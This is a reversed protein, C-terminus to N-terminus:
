KEEVKVWLYFELGVILALFFLFNWWFLAEIASLWLLLLLFVISLTTRRLFVPSPASEVVLKRRGRLHEFLIVGGWLFLGLSLLFLFLGLSGAEFPDIYFLVLIFGLLSIPTLIKAATVIEQLM